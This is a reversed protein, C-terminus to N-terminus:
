IMCEHEPINLLRQLMDRLALQLGDRKNATRQHITCWAYENPMNPYGGFLLAEYQINASGRRQFYFNNADNIVAHMNLSQLQVTVAHILEQLCADDALDRGDNFARISLPKKMNTM